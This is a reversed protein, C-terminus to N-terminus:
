DTPTATYKAEEGQGLLEAFNHQPAYGLLREAKDVAYVRDISQPFAWQRSAFVQEVGPYYKQIVAKPDTKLGKLDAKGFPSKASINFVEFRDFTKELALLHAAAGDREDLGRYLRHVVVTNDPEPLFRSVRLVTAQVGEKEFFDRCLLEATLKTIDYIDRPDPPLAEDVWVAERDDTMAHGYISTTSTYLFKRIGHAVCAELLHLTGDINTTTFAERPYGLAYHKGHVAATHIIAGVSQTLALVQAKDRVDLRSDTMPSPVIDVGMVEYAKERLQRVIERGLQGSSGTVLIKDKM